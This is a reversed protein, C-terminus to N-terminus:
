RTFFGSTLTANPMWESPLKAGKSLNCHPCLLQLNTWDNGGGRSLPMAHDVHYGYSLCRGCGWCLGWQVGFLIRVDAESHAGPASLEVARRNRDRARFVEPRTAKTRRYYARNHVRVKEADRARSRSIDASVQEPTRAGRQMKRRLAIADRNVSRYTAARAKEREANLSYAARRKEAYMESQQVRYAKAKELISARNAERYAAAKRLAQPKNAVYDARKLARICPRCRRGISDADLVAGCLKCTKM